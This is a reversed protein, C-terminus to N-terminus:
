SSKEGARWEASFSDAISEIVFEEYGGLQDNM